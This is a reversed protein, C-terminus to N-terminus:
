KHPRILAVTTHGVTSLSSGVENWGSVIAAQTPNGTPLGPRGKGDMMMMMM